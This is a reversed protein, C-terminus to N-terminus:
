QPPAPDAANLGATPGPRRCQPRRHPRTPPMSAQPRAPAASHPWEGPVHLVGPERPLAPPAAHAPFLDAAGKATEVEPGHVVRLRLLVAFWARSPWDGM